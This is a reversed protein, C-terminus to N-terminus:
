FKFNRFQCTNFNKTTELKKKTKVYEGHREDLQGELITYSSKCSQKTKSSELLPKTKIQKQSTHTCWEYNHEEMLIMGVQQM